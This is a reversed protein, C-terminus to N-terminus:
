TIDEHRSCARPPPPPPPPMSQRLDLRSRQMAYAKTHALIEAEYTGDAEYFSLALTSDLPDATDPSLLLGFVCEFVRRISTDSTWNRDLM